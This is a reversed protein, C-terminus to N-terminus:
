KQRVDVWWVTEPMVILKIIYIKLTIIKTVLNDYQYRM